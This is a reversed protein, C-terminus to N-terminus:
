GCSRVVEWVYGISGGTEKNPGEYATIKEFAWPAITGADEGRVDRVSEIPGLRKDTTIIRTGVPLKGCERSFDTLIIGDSPWTSSYAFVITNSHSVVESLFGLANGLHFEIRPGKGSVQGDITQMKTLSEIAMDHLSEVTEIGVVSSLQPFLVASAIVLRGCGSGVDVLVAGESNRGGFSLAVQALAAFFELDFEGYTLSTDVAARGLISSTYVLKDGLQAKRGVQLRHNYGDERPFLSEVTHAAESLTKPLLVALVQLWM